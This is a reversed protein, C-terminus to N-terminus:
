LGPQAVGRFVLLVLLLPATAAVTHMLSSHPSQLWM